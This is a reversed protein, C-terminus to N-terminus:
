KIKRIQTVLQDALERPLPASGMRGADSQGKTLTWKLFSRIAEKKKDEIEESILLWSFSALPYAAGKSSDVLSTRVDAQVEKTQAAATLAAPEPTLFHGSRNQIACNILARNLSSAVSADIYGISYPTQAVLAAVGENGKGGIGALPWSVQPGSHVRSSWEPSRAGLFENFTNTAGSADSRHVVTIQAPPLITAPNLARIAPHDWATIQGLYIAALIEGSLNLGTRGSDLHCIVSVGQVAVPFNLFVRKEAQGNKMPTDSIAFDITKAALQRIGSPGILQYLIEVNRDVAHFESFWRQYLALASTSGAALLQVPTESAKPREPKASPDGVPPRNPEVTSPWAAPESAAAQEVVVERIPPAVVIIEVPPPAPREVRVIRIEEPPPALSPMSEREHSVVAAALPVQPTEISAKQPHSVPPSVVIQDLIRKVGDIGRALQFAQLEVEPSSATGSLVVEGHSVEVTVDAAKVQPDAYFKARIQTAIAEDSPGRSCGALLLLTLFGSQYRM